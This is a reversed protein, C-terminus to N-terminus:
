HNRKPRRFLLALFVILLLVLLVDGIVFLMTSNEGLKDFISGGTIPIFEDKTETQQVPTVGLKTFSLVGMDQNVGVLSISLDNVGNSDFDVNRSEGVNLSTTASGDISLLVSNGTFSQLGATHQKNDLMILAKDNVKMSTSLQNVGTPFNLTFVRGEGTENTPIEGCNEVILSFYSEKTEDSEDFYVKTNVNYTKEKADESVKLSFRVVADNDSKSYKDLDYTASDEDFKLESDSVKVYVGDESKTGINEIDVTVSVTEGCTVTGPVVNIKTIAVDHDAREVNIDELDQLCSEDGNDDNGTVVVYLNYDDNAGIEKDNPIEFQLEITEEDDKDMDIKESKITEIEKGSDINYLIAQVQVDELDEEAEVDVEIDVKDFPVYDEDDFNIDNIKLYGEAGVECFNPEVNVNYEFTGTEDDGIDSNGKNDLVTFKITNVGRYDEDDPRGSVQGSSDIIVWVPNSTDETFSLNGAGSAGVITLNYPGYNVNEKVKDAGSPVSFTLAAFVSNVLVLFILVNLFLKKM